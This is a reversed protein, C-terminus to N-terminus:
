VKRRSTSLFLKAYAAPFDKQKYFKILGSNQMSTFNNRCHRQILFSKRQRAGDNHRRQRRHISNLATNIYIQSLMMENPLNFGIEFESKKRRTKISIQRCRSFSQETRHAPLNHQSSCLFKNLKCASKVVYFLAYKYLVQWAEAVAMFSISHQSFRERPPLYFFNNVVAVDGNSGMATSYNNERREGCKQHQSFQCDKPEPHFNIVKEM